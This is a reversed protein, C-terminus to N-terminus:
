AANDAQNQEVTQAMENRRRLALRHLMVGFLLLALGPAAIQLAWGDGRDGLGLTVALNTLLVVGIGLWITRACNRNM